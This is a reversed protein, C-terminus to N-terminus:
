ADVKVREASPTGIISAAAAFLDFARRAARLVPRHDSLRPGHFELTANFSQWFDSRVGHSLYAHADFVEPHPSESARRLLVKAGLRSGELVYMTGLIDGSGLVEPASSPRVIGEVRALDALIARSRARSDWDPFLREVHASVLAAELPLLAAASIELFLRYDQRRRLDLVGLRADLQRHSDACAERLRARLTVGTSAATSLM